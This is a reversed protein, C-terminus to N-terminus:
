PRTSSRSRRGRNTVDCSGVLVREPDAGLGAFAAELRSLDRACGAVRAGEASPLRATALGVGSSAGSIIVTRDALKLDM